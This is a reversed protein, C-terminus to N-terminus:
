LYEFPPGYLSERWSIYGIASGIGWGIEQVIDGDPSVEQILGNTSFVVLTNGNPLRKADGLSQSILRDSSYEWILSADFDSEDLSYELARSAANFGGGAEGRNNFLLISDELIQHQHQANWSVEPFDSDDGGFVWLLEGGRDFKIITDMRLISLTYADESPLYNIANAHCWEGETARDEFHDRVMFVERTSGDPALEVVRDCTGEGTTEYEFYTITGDPLVTADHHRKPASYSETELGDMSVKHLFGGNPGPVNGNAVIMHRGDESMMARVYDATGFSYWWVYDGDEDMIFVWKGQYNCSIVFGGALADADYVTVTKSPLDTPVEGTEITYDDSVYTDGDGEARIRFHYQRKPKMGLLLTRFNPQELDVPATWRYDTDLGFEIVASEVSADVSWEVIGVTSIEPSIAAEVTFISDGAPAPGTDGGEESGNSSGDCGSLLYVVLFAAVRWGGKGCCTLLLLRATELSNGM